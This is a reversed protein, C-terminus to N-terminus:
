TSFVMKQVAVCTSSVPVYTIIREKPGTCMNFHGEKSFTLMNFLGETSCTCTLMHFHGEESCTLMSFSGRKFLYAHQFSGGKFLYAHQFAGGKFLYAHQFSVREFRKGPIMKWLVSFSGAPFWVIAASPLSFVVRECLAAM